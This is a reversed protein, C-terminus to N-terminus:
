AVKQKLEYRIFKGKSDRPQSQAAKSLQERAWNTLQVKKWPLRKINRAHLDLADLKTLDDERVEFPINLMGTKVQYLVVAKRIILFSQGYPEYRVSKKMPLVSRMLKANDM